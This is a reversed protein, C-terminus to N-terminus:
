FLKESEITVYNENLYLIKIKYNIKSVIIGQDIDRDIQFIKDNYNQFVELLFQFLYKDDSRFYYEKVYDNVEVKNLFRSNSFFLTSLIIRNISNNDYHINRNILESLEKEYQEKDIIHLPHSVKGLNEKTLIIRWEDEYSWIKDKISMAYTLPLQANIAIKNGQSERTIFKNFNIPRLDDYDIPFFMFNESAFSKLFEDTAFEICFGLESTYHPWFLNNNFKETLCLVGRHQFVDETLYQTVLKIIDLPNRKTESEYEKIFETLDWLQGSGEMIDNLKFPHSFHIKNAILNLVSYKNVSFYKYLKSPIERETKVKLDQGILFFSKEKLKLEM